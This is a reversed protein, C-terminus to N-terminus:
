HKDLSKLGQLNFGSSPGCILGERSLLMSLRYSDSSGVEEISDVAEKWHFDIPALLAYARPGPVRDGPVTCVSSLHLAILM